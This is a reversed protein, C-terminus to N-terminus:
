VAAHAFNADSKNPLRSEVVLAQVNINLRDIDVKLREPLKWRDEVDASADTALPGNCQTGKMVPFRCCKVHVHDGQNWDAALSKVIPRALGDGLYDHLALSNLTDFLFGAYYRTKMTCIQEAHIPM